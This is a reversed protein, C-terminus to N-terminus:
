TVVQNLFNIVEQHEGQTARDLSDLGQKDTANTNILGTQYLKKVKNLMGKAAAKIFPTDGNKNAKDLFKQVSSINENNTPNKDNEKLNFDSELAMEIIRDALKEKKNHLANHLLNNGKSDEQLIIDAFGHKDLIALAIEEDGRKAALQLATMGDSNKQNLDIPTHNLIATAMRLNIVHKGSTNALLHLISNGDNDQQNVYSNLNPHDDKFGIIKNLIEEAVKFDGRKFNELLPTDKLQNEAKIENRPAQLLVTNRLLNHKREISIDLLTQNQNNTLTFDIESAFTRIFRAADSAFGNDIIAMIPTQGQSNQSNITQPRARLFKYVKSLGEKTDLHEFLNNANISIDTDLNQLPTSNKIGLLYKAQARPPNNTLQPKPLLAPTFTPKSRLQPSSKTSIQASSSDGNNTMKTEPSALKSAQLRKQASTQASSDSAVNLSSALLPKGTIPNELTGKRHSRGIPSQYFERALQIVQNLDKM